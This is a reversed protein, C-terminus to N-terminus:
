SYAFTQTCICLVYTLIYTRIYTHVYTHVCTHGPVWANIDLICTIYTIYKMCTM